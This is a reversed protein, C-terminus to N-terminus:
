LDECLRTNTEPNIQIFWNEMQQGYKMRWRNVIERRDKVSFYYKKHLKRMVNYDGVVLPKLLTVIGPMYQNKFNPALSLITM